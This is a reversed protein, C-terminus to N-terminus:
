YFNALNHVHLRSKLNKKAIKNILKGHDGTKRVLFNWEYTQGNPTPLNYSAEIIKPKQIM